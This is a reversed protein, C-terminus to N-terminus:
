DVNSRLLYRVGRCAGGAKNRDWVRRIGVVFWTSGKLGFEFTPLQRKFRIVQNSAREM